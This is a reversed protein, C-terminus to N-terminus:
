KASLWSSPTPECTEQHLVENAPMVEYEERQNDEAYIWGEPIGSFFYNKTKSLLYRDSNVGPTSQPHHEKALLGVLRRKM